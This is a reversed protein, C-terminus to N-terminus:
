LVKSLVGALGGSIVGIGVALVGSKTRNKRAGVSLDYTLVFNVLETSIAIDKSTIKSM